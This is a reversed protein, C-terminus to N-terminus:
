IINEIQECLEKAVTKGRDKGYWKQIDALVESKEKIPNRKHEIMIQAAPKPKPGWIFVEELTNEELCILKPIAKGGNTLYNNIIEEYEDRLFIILEINESHEALKNIIPLNWAADGCWAEAIVVFIIKKNLSQLTSKCNDDLKFTRDIRLMRHINVKTFEVYSEPRNEGTTKGEKLLDNILSKYQEYTLGKQLLEKTFKFGM